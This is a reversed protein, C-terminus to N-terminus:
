EELRVRGTVRYVTLTAALGRDGKNAEVLVIQRDAPEDATGDARFVIEGGANTWVVGAALYQAYGITGHVANSVFFCGRSLAPDNAFAFATPIGHSIAWQRAQDLAARAKQTSSRIRAARGWHVSSAAAISMLIVFIALIALIEVLTFGGPFTSRRIRIATPRAGSETTQPGIFFARTRGDARALPRCGTKPRCDAVPFRGNPRVSGM